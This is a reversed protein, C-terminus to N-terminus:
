TYSSCTGLPICGTTGNTTCKSSATQCAAHTAYFADTCSTYAKCVPADTSGLSAVSQICDGDYGKVCGGSVNTESCLTIGLCNTGNTTCNPSIAKCSNHTNWNLSKCSTYPYCAGVGAADTIWLCPGDTGKICAARM